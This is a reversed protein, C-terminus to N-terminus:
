VSKDLGLKSILSDLSEEIERLTKRYADIDGGFPDVIDLQHLKDELMSISEQEDDICSDFQSHLGEIEQEVMRLENRLEVRRKNLEQLRNGYKNVFEMRKKEIRDQLESLEATIDDLSSNKSVYEKLTFVKGRAEPFRDLTMRKHTLTMVLILDASSVMERTVNKARHSSIDIGRERMARVAEDSAPSGDFASLGASVVEPRRSGVSTHELKHKLIGEAISSRCTNGTCLLLIRKPCRNM